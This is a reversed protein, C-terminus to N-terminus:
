NYQGACLPNDPNVRWSVGRLLLLAVSYLVIPPVAALLLLSRHTTLVHRKHAFQKCRVLALGLPPGLHGGSDRVNELPFMQRERLGQLVKLSKERGISGARFPEFARFPWPAKLTRM